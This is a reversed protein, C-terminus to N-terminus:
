SKRGPTSASSSPPTPPNNSLTFIGSQVSLKAQDLEEKSVELRVPSEKRREDVLLNVMVGKGRFARSDAFTLVRNERAWSRIRGVASEESACIFLADCRGVDGFRKVYRIRIPRQKVTNANAEALLYNEFPSKGLVVLEFPQDKPAEEGSPRNVYPLFAVIFKAKTEYEPPAGLIPRGLALWLCAWLARSV